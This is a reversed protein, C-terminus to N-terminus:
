VASSSTIVEYCRDCVHHSEHSGVSEDYRWCRDCKETDALEVTVKAQTEGSVVLNVESVIFLMPLPESITKLQEVTRSDATITIKAENSAGLKKDARADELAKAVQRRVELLTSWKDRLARNEFQRPLTQWRSLHVSEPASAPKPMHRWIEDATFVLIPAVLKVLEVLIHYMATQASRRTRGQPLDCYLRDKLVDLYFGGLDVACFHHVTHYVLHFEYRRYAGRVRDSLVALQDLVWQDIECLDEYAVLDKEPDFDSLNGLIFRATNRIRRYADALQQLIEQSVRIDGRYEASAVWMRFIDAGYEKIVEKPTIVNGLSKSMKRGEGDVVFGHTLVSKYPAQNFAAVSTSLSSQFWGRHQDSGELYMDAPWRMDDRQQLVAAHSVGSDFWMWSTPKKTFETGGCHPCSYGDPLFDKADRKWWADSGETRFVAAVRNTLEEDIVAEGCKGCYFLPIPM